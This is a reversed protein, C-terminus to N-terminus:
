AQKEFNQTGECMPCIPRAADAEVEHGCATCRWTSLPAEQQRRPPPGAPQDRRPAKAAKPTSAGVIFAMEPTGGQVWTPARADAPGHKGADPAKASGTLFARDPPTPEDHEQPM